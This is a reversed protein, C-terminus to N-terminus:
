FSLVAYCSAGAAEQSGFTLYESFKETSILDNSSLFPCQFVIQGESFSLHKTQNVLVVYTKM